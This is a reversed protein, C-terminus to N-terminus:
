RKATFVGLETYTGPTTGGSITHTLNVSGAVWLGNTGGILGQYGGLSTSDSGTGATYAGGTANGSFKGNSQIAVNTLTVSDFAKPTTPTVSTGNALQLKRNIIKGGINPNSGSFNAILRTEGVIAVQGSGTVSGGSSGFVGRYGGIFTGTGLTPLASGNTRKYRAVQAFGGTATSVGIITANVYSTQGSTVAGDDSFAVVDFTGDPATPLKEAGGFTSTDGSIANANVLYNVRAVGNISGGSSDTFAPTSGDSPVTGTVNSYNAGFGSVIYPTQGLPPSIPPASCASLGVFAVFILPKYM